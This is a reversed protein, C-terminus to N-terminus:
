ADPVSHIYAPMMRVEDDKKDLDYLVIDCLPVMGIRQGEHCVPLHRFNHRRMLAMCNELEEDMNITVPDDTMVEAMCTNPPARGEALVRKMLDRELFIGVLKGIHLVPM